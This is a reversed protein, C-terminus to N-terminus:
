HLLCANIRMLRDGGSLRLELSGYEEDEFVYVLTPTGFADTVRSPTGLAALIDPLSDGWHLGEPLPGRFAHVVANGPGYLSVVNVIGDRTAVGTWDHCIVNTGEGVALPATPCMNDGLEKGLLAVPDPWGGASEASGIAPAGALHMVVAALVVLDLVILAVALRGHCAARLWSHQVM